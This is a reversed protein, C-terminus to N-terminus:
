PLTSGTESVRALADRLRTIQEGSPISPCRGNLDNRTSFKHWGDPRVPYGLACLGCSIAPYISRFGELWSTPIM